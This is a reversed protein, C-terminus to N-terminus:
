IALELPAPQEVVHQRRGTEEVPDERLSRGLNGSRRGNKPARPPSYEQKVRAYQTIVCAMCALNVVVFIIEVVTIALHDGGVVTGSTEDGVWWSICYALNCIIEIAMCILWPLILLTFNKFIAFIFPLSVLLLLSSIVSNVVEMVFLGYFFQERSMFVNDMTRFVSYGWYSPMLQPFNYNYRLYRNTAAQWGFISIQVVSFIISWIGIGICTRKLSCVWGDM